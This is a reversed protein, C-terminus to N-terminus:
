DRNYAVNIWDTCERAIEESKDKGKLNEKGVNTHV